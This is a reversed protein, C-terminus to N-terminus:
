YEFGVVSIQAYGVAAATGTAGFGQVTFGIGTGSPFEIGDPMVIVATGVTGAVNSAAGICWTNVLTSTVTVNGSTQARLRVSVYGPTTVAVYTVTITEIRYTKGTSVVAPTTTATIAANGKFGTFSQLTETATSVVPAAMFYVTANRGSDKAAQTGVFTNAQLGKTVGTLVVESNADAGGGVDLMVMQTQAGTASNVTKAVTRVNAGGTGANLTINDVAM